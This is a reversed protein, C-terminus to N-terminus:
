VAFRVGSVKVGDVETEVLQAGLTKYVNAAQHKLEALGAYAEAHFQYPDILLTDTDPYQVQLSYSFHKKRRPFHAEFLGLKDACTMTTIVKGSGLEKVDVSQAGPLWARLVLGSGDPDAILGLHEFPQGCLAGTLERILM